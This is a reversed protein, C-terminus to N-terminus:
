CELKGQGISSLIKFSWNDNFNSVGYKGNQNNFASWTNLYLRGM